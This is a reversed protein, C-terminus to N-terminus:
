VLQPRISHREPTATAALRVGIQEPVVPVASSSPRASERSVRRLSFARARLGSIPATSQILDDLQGVADRLKEGIGILGHARDPCGGIDYSHALAYTSTEAKSLLDRLTEEQSPFPTGDRGTPRCKM